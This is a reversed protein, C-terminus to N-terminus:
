APPLGNLARAVRFDAEFDQRSAEPFSRDLLKAHAWLSEFIALAEAFSLAHYAERAYAAEFELWRKTPNLVTEEAEHVRM